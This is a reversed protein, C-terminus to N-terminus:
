TQVDQLLQEVKELLRASVTLSEQLFPGDVDLGGEYEAINRRRHWEGLLRVEAPSLQATHVLCNFVQYRNSSRFGHIRLAALALAHAASYGLDFRSSFSLDKREADRLRDRGSEVLSRIEDANSAERHLQGIAVLNDLEDSPM